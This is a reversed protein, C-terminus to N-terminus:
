LLLPEDGAYLIAGGPRPEAGPTLRAAERKNRDFIHEVSFGAVILYDAVIRRHCRWWLAEACLIATPRSGALAKLEDFAARFEPTEAYDAFHRFAPERWLGHASPKGDARAQRRGGLAPVHRYAIGAEALARELNERNFHPHRRSHPFRRIDAVAEVPASKLADILEDLTRTSHGVTYAIM